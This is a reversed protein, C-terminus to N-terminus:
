HRLRCGGGRSRSPSASHGARVDRVPLDPPVHLAAPRDTLRDLTYDIDDQLGFLAFRDHPGLASPVEVPLFVPELAIAAPTAFRPDKLWQLDPQREDRIAAGGAGGVRRAGRKGAPPASRRPVGSVLSTADHCQGLLPTDM